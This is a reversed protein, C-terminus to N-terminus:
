ESESTEGGGCEMRKTIAHMCISIFACYIFPDNSHDLIHNRPCIKGMTSCTDAWVVDIM